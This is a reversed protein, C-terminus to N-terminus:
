ANFGYMMSQFVVYFKLNRKIKINKVAATRRRCSKTVM